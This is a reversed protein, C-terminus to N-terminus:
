HPPRQQLLTASRTDPRELSAIFAKRVTDINRMTGSRVSDIALCDDASCTGHQLTFDQYGLATAWGSHDILREDPHHQFRPFEAIDAKDIPRQMAHAPDDVFVKDVQRLFRGVIQLHDPICRRRRQAGCAVLRVQFIAALDELDQLRVFNAIEEIDAAVIRGVGDADDGLFRALRVVRDMAHVDRLRDVVIYHQVVM